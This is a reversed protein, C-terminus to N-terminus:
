RWKKLDVRSRDGRGCFSQAQHLHKVARRYVERFFLWGNGARLSVSDPVSSLRCVDTDIIHIMHSVNKDDDESKLDTTFAVLNRCSWSCVLPISPCHTSKPRKEWECVYALEM